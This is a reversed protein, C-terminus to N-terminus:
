FFKIVYVQKVKNKNHRATGKRLHVENTDGFLWCYKVPQMFIGDLVSSRMMRRGCKYVACGFSSCTCHRSFYKKSSCNQARKQHLSLLFPSCVELQKIWRWIDMLQELMIISFIEFALQGRYFKAPIGVHLQLNDLVGSKPPPTKVSSTSVGTPTTFRSLKNM